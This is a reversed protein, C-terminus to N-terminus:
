ELAQEAGVVKDHGTSNIQTRDTSEKLDRPPDPPKPPDNVPHMYLRFWHEAYMRIIDRPLNHGFGDYIVLRLREPDNAYYPKAAKVFSRATKPDVVIDDGGSVLLTATPYMTGSHRVPDWEKLLEKTEPWINDTQGVWLKNTKWSELWEGYAGTSVFAVIAALRPEHCAVSLGPIGTSSSGMWGIKRPHVDGRSILYDIVRKADAPARSGGLVYSHAFREDFVLWQPRREPDPNPPHEVSFAALMYGEDVLGTSWDPLAKPDISGLMLIVPHKEVTDTKHALMVTAEPGGDKLAITERKLEAASCCGISM